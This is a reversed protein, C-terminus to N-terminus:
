GRDAASWATLFARRGEEIWERAPRAWISDPLSLDSFVELDYWGRYGGRELAGFLEPLPIVGQGPLLRDLQLRTPQRYDNIQVGAVSQAYKQTLQLVDPSDWLHWVDYIIKLDDGVEEMLTLMANFSGIFSWERVIGMEPEAAPDALARESMPEVAFTVGAARATEAAMRLGDVVIERATVKDYDGVPGTLVFVTDAGIAALRRISACIEGLRREPEAPGPIAPSPLLSLVAPTCISPRVGLSALKAMLLEDGGPEMKNEDIGLGKINLDRCIELDDEMSTFPLALQCISFQPVDSM